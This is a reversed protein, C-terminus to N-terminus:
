KRKMQMLRWRWRLGVLPRSAERSELEAGFQSGDDLVQDGEEGGGKGGVGGGLFGGEVEGDQIVVGVEGSGVWGFGYGSVEKFGQRV